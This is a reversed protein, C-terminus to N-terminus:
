RATPRTRRSEGQLEILGDDVMISQGVAMVKPLNKYDMYILEATCVGEQTTRRSLLWRARRCPSDVTPWEHGQAHGLPDRPGKTDLAIGVLRRGAADRRGVQSRADIVEGHYEYSGHSFNMRVINLGAERLMTIKEAGEDEARDHLHHRHDLM